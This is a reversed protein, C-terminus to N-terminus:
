KPIHELDKGSESKSVIEVIFDPVGQCEPKDFVISQDCVVFIDPEVTTDDFGSEEFALRVGFKATHVTCTKGKLFDRLQGSIDMQITSHRESPASMLYVVGDILEADVDEPWSKYDNYTLSDSM